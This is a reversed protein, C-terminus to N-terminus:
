PNYGPSINVHQWDLTENADSLYSNKRLSLDPPSIDMLKKRIESFKKAAQEPFNVSWDSCIYEALAYRLYEIYYSDYFLSLDTNLSVDTLSFKGSLKMLYVQDPVFYLYVNSGDLERELHWTFPLSQINDVRGQGFYDKRGMKNMPYRVVGINFTLTEISLLNPIFYLEQGTVTPFDFRTFYPILRVDSGKIDLLSNLLDLGDTIQEGTVTQLQRSVVQSLYYARTVLQLATYAM